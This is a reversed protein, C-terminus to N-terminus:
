RTVKRTRNRSDVPAVFTALEPFEKLVMNKWQTFTESEQDRVYLHIGIEAGVDEMRPNRWKTLCNLLTPSTLSSITTDMVSKDVGYEGRLIQKLKAYTIGKNAEVIRYIIWRLTCNFERTSPDRSLNFSLKELLAIDTNPPQPESEEVCTMCVMGNPSYHGQHSVLSM